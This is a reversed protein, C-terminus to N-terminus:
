RPDGAAIPMCKSYPDLPVRYHELQLFNWPAFTSPHQACPRQCVSVVYYTPRAQYPWPTSWQRPWPRCCLQRQRSEQRYIFAPSVTGHHMLTAGVFPKAGKMTPESSVRPIDEFPPWSTLEPLSLCWFPEGLM